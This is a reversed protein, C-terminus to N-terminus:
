ESDETNIKSINRKRVLFTLSDSVKKGRRSIFLHSPPLSPSSFSLSVILLESFFNEIFAFEKRTSFEILHFYCHFRQPPAPYCCLSSMFRKQRIILMALETKCTSCTFFSVIFDFTFALQLSKALRKQLKIM